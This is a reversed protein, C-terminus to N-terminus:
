IAAAAAARRRDMLEGRAGDVGAGSVVGGGPEPSLSAEVGADLRDYAALGVATLDIKNTATAKTARSVLGISEAQKLLYRTAASDWGAAEAVIATARGSPSAVSDGLEHLVRLLHELRETLSGPERGTSSTSACVRRRRGGGAPEPVPDAVALPAALPSEEGAEGAVRAGDLSRSASPDPADCRVVLVVGGGTPAPEVLIEELEPEYEELATALKALLQVRPRFDLAVRYEELATM